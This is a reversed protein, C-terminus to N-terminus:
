LSSFCLLLTDQLRASIVMSYLEGPFLSHSPSNSEPPSVAGTTLSGRQAAAPDKGMAAEQSAREQRVDTCLSPDLALRTLSHKNKHCVSFPKRFHRDTETYNVGQPPRLQLSLRPKGTTCHKGEPKMEYGEELLRDPTFSCLSPERKFARILVQGLM